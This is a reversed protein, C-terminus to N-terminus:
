DSAFEAMMRRIERVEDDNVLHGMGPYIRKEVTAGAAQFFGATEEVREIPIHPDGDGCGLFVSVGTTEDGVDWKTGSPGIRGGSLGIVAASSNLNRAAFELALCAGQSFGLLLTRSSPIGAHSLEELLARIRDLARSLYPQNQALPATFAFPYWTQGPAELAVFAFGPSYFSQSFARMDAASGGRGHLLVMAATASKLDAGWQMASQLETTMM